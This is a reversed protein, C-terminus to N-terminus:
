LDHETRLMVEEQMKSSLCVFYDSYGGIRVVLDQYQEPNERAKKLTESDVVNIQLEFGGRAMYTQILAIMKRFSDESFVRKSFKMNIAIGGILEKHSWKTSSLISATPGCMERGQCPGSGDGLPFGALRGDPTAGTEAGFAEHMVYCFASPVLRAGPLSPTYKKCEEVIFHVIKQALADVDDIDNGYKPIDNLLHLRLAEQNQFNSDLLASMQALSLKKEEFVVKKLVYFSDVLNAMGVFSPMIWNYKAGGEEIDVGREMCNHVFCSLLPTLNKEARTDRYRNMDEFEKQIRLALRRCYEEWLSDFDELDEPLIDLLIQPLNIYPSAVWINSGGIPTIEVCTSHIYDHCEEEPVGYERLGASIIDDNFIAPHSRGHSLNECALKLTDEPMERTYCLGVAPYVLRIDDVVQMGMYTLENAVIKGYRDRGGVMWGSSLGRVVRHNVIIGLCDLLLQAFEPTLRGAEIDKQYYPYLYRDPRGLQYQQCCLRHPNLSLCFTLFHVSQIAEYFSAAPYKPVRSCIEGITQLEKKREPDACQEALRYAYESYRDSLQIVAELAKECCLYYAAKKEDRAALRRNKVSEMVGLIGKQLLLNYDIAMHSDQGMMEIVQSAQASIKEYHKAEEETFPVDGCKGVILEGDDIVPVIRQFAYTVAEAYASVKGCDGVNQLYHDYFDIHFRSFNIAPCLAKQRLNEIRDLYEKKM